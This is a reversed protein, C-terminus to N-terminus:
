LEGDVNFDPDDPVELLAQECRVDFAQPHCTVRGSRLRYARSVLGLWPGAEIAVVDLAGDAPDAEEVAAGAGFAGSAAVTM